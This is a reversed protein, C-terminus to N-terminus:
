FGRDMRPRAEVPSWGMFRRVNQKSKAISASEPQPPEEAVRASEEDAPTVFVIGCLSNADGHALSGFKKAGV